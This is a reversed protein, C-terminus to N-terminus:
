GLHDLRTLNAQNYEIPCLCIHSEGHEDEQTRKLFSGSVQTNNGIIMVSDPSSPPSPTQPLDYPYPRRQDRGSTSGPSEWSDLSHEPSDLQSSLALKQGISFNSHAGREPMTVIRGRAEFEAKVTTPPLPNPLSVMRSQISLSLASPRNCDIWLKRDACSALPEVNFPLKSTLGHIYARQDTSREDDSFSVTEPVESPTTARSTGLPFLGHSIQGCGSCATSPETQTAMEVYRKSGLPQLSMDM